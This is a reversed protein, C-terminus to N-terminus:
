GPLNDVIDYDAYSGTSVNMSKLVKWLNTTVMISTKNGTNNLEGVNSFMGSSNTVKGMDFNRIDLSKLSLCQSFMYSMDAVNATNFNSLDLSNLAKCYYFMNNMDTVNATDFSSALGQPLPTALLKPKATYPWCFDLLLFVKTRNKTPLRIYLLVNLRM